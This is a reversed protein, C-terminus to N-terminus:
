THLVMNLGDNGGNMRILVLVRDEANKSYDFLDKSIAQMSFGNSVFPLSLSALSANKLFDRRKM